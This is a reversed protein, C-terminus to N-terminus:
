RKDVISYLVVNGHPVSYGWFCHDTGISYPVLTNDACLLM